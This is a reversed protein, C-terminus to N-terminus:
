SVSIMVNKIGEKLDDDTHLDNSYVKDKLVTVNSSRTPGSIASPLILIDLKNIKVMQKM